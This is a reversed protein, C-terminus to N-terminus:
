KVQKTQFRALQKMATNYDFKSNETTLCSAGGCALGFAFSEVLAFPDARASSQRELWAHFTSGAVADGAGVPSQVLGPLKCMQISWVKGSQVEYVGGPFPGDTWCIAFLAEAGGPTTKVFNEAAAKVASPDCPVESDDGKPATGGGLALLERGNVKLVATGGVKAVAQLSAPLGVVSDIVVKTSPGGAAEVISGYFDSPVGPPVSGM